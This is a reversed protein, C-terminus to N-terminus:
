VKLCASLEVNSQQFSETLEDDGDVGQCIHLTARIANEQMLHVLAGDYQETIMSVMHPIVNCAVIKARNPQRRSLEHMMQVAGLRTMEATDEFMEVIPPLAGLSAVLCANREDISAITILCSAASIKVTRNGRYLLRVLPSATNMRALAEGNVRSFSLNRLCRCIHECLEQTEEALEQDGPTAVKSELVKVMNFMLKRTQGITLQNAHDVGLYQLSEAAKSRVVDGTDSGLLRAMIPLSRSNMLETRTQVVNAEEGLRKGRSGRAANAVAGVASTVRIDRRAPAHHTNPRPAQVDMNLHAIVEAPTRQRPHTHSHHEALKQKASKSLTPFKQTNDRQRGHHHKRHHHRHVHGGGEAKSVERGEGFPDGFSRTPPRSPDDPHHRTRAGPPLTNTAPSTSGPAPPPPAFTM